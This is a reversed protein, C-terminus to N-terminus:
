TDDTALGLGDGAERINWGLVRGWIIYLRLARTANVLRARSASKEGPGGNQRDRLPRARCGCTLVDDAAALPTYTVNAVTM